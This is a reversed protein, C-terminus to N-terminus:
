RVVEASEVRTESCWPCLGNSEEWKSRPNVKGCSNCMLQQGGGSSSSNYKKSEVSSSDEKDLEDRLMTIEDELEQIRDNKEKLKEAQDDAIQRYVTSSLKEDDFNYLASSPVLLDVTKGNFTTVTKVNEEPDLPIPFASMGKVTGSRRIIPKKLDKKDTNKFENPWRGTYDGTILDVIKNGKIM